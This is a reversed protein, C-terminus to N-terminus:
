APARAELVEGRTRGVTQAYREIQATLRDQERALKIAEVTARNAGAALSEGAQRGAQNATQAFQKVSQTAQAIGASLGSADATVSVVAAGIEDGSAM